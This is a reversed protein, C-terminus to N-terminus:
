PRTLVHYIVYIWGLAGHIMAWLVSQYKTYSIVVALASGLGIGNASVTQKVESSM